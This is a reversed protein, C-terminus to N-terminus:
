IAMIRSSTRASLMLMGLVIYTRRDPKSEAPSTTPAASVQGDESPLPSGNIEVTSAELDKSAQSRLADNLLPSEENYERM